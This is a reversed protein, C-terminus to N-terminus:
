DSQGPVTFARLLMRLEERYDEENGGPHIIYEHAVGFLSKHFFEGARYPPLDSRFEGANMGGKLLRSVIPRSNQYYDQLEAQVDESLKHPENHIAVDYYNILAFYGPHAQFFKLYLKCYQLFRNYWTAPLELCKVLEEDLEWLIRVTVVVMLDTKSKFYAYLTKRSFEARKAVDAMVVQEYGREVFLDRAAAIIEDRRQKLERERRTM